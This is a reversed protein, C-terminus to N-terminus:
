MDQVCLDPHLGTAGCEYRRQPYVSSFRNRNSSDAGQLVTKM